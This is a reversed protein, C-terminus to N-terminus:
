IHKFIVNYSFIELQSYIKKGHALLTGLPQRKEWIRVKWTLKHDLDPGLCKVCEAAPINKNNLRILPSNGLCKTCVTTQSKKNIKILFTCFQQLWMQMMIKPSTLVRESHINLGLASGESVEFRIPRIQTIQAEFRVRFYREELCSRLIIFM